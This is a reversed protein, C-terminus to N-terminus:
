VLDINRGVNMMLSPQTQSLLASPASSVSSVSAGSSPVHHLQPMSASSPFAAGPPATMSMRSTPSPVPAAGVAGLGGVRQSPAMSPAEFPQLKLVKGPFSERHVPLPVNASAAHISPSPDGRRGNAAGGGMLAPNSTLSPINRGGTSSAMMMTRPDIGNYPLSSFSSPAPGPPQLQPQPHAGGLSTSPPSNNNSTHPSQVLQPLISPASASMSLAPPANQLYSPASALASPHFSVAGDYYLASTSSSSAM